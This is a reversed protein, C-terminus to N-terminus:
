YEILEDAALLIGNPRTIGLAPWPDGRGHSSRPPQSNNIM